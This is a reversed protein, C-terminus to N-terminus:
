KKYPLTYLYQAIKEFKRTTVDGGARLRSVLSTDGIAKWGFSEPTVTPSARLYGEIQELMIEISAKKKPEDTMYYFKRRFSSNTWLIFETIRNVSNNKERLRCSISPNMPFPNVM